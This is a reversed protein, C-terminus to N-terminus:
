RAMRALCAAFLEWCKVCMCNNRTRKDVTSGVLQSMQHINLLPGANQLQKKVAVNRNLPFRLKFITKTHFLM